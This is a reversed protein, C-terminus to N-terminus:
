PTSVYEVDVPSTEKADEIEIKQVTRPLAKIKDFDPSAQRSVDIPMDAEHNVLDADVPEVKKPEVIEIPRDVTDVVFGANEVTGSYKKAERQERLSIIGRFAMQVKRLNSAQSARISSALTEPLETVNMLDVLTEDMESPDLDGRAIIPLMTSHCHAVMSQGTGNDSALFDDTTNGTTQSERFAATRSEPMMHPTGCNCGIVHKIYRKFPSQQAVALAAKCSKYGRGDVAICGVIGELALQHRLGGRAATVLSKVSFNAKLAAILKKGMVGRNMQDRAFVIVPGADEQAEAPLNRKVVGSRPDDFLPSIDGMGWELQLAPKINNDKKGVEGTPVFNPHGPNVLGDDMWRLDQLSATKDVGKGPTNEDFFKSLNM